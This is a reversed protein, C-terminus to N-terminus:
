GPQTLWRRLLDLGADGSKEPHFQTLLVPGDQVAAAFRIGHSSWAATLSPDAPAAYFSHVFYFSTREPLLDLRSDTLANWGMHPVKLGPANPFRRVTGALLGLGGAQGEESKEFMLQMGLCIGLFPRQLDRYRRIADDLGRERLQRVAYAMAGVGPMIVRSAELVVRPDQTVTVTEGLYALAKVVSGINGMGYDILVTM